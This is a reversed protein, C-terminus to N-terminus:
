AAEEGRTWRRLVDAAQKENLQIIQELRKLPARKMKSTLDEVLNPEDMEIAGAQQAAAAAQADALATFESKQAEAAREAARAELISNVAPRLGFWVLLVAM